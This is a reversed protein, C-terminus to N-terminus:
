ELRIPDTFAIGTTGSGFRGPNIGIVFVRKREDNYFKKFFEKTVHQVAPSEYSKLYDFDKPLNFQPNLQLFFDTAKSGFTKLPAM